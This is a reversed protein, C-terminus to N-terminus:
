ALPKLISTRSLNVGGNAMRSLTRDPTISIRTAVPIHGDSWIIIGTAHGRKGDRMDIRISYLGNKIAYNLLAGTIPLATVAPMGNRGPAKLIADTVANLDIEDVECAPAVRSRVLPKIIQVKQTAM